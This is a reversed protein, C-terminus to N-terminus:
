TQQFDLLVATLIEYNQIDIFICLVIELYVTMLFRVTFNTVFKKLGTKCCCRTISDWIVTLITIMLLLATLDAIIGLNSLLSYHLYSAQSQIPELNYDETVETRWDSASPLFKLRMLYILKSSVQSVEGPVQIDLM